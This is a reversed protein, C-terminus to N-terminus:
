ATVDAIAFYVSILTINHETSKYTVVTQADDWGEYGATFGGDASKSTLVFDAAKAAGIYEAIKDAPAKKSATCLALIAWAM